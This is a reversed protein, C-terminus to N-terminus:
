HIESLHFLASGFIDEKPRYANFNRLHQLDSHRHYKLFSRRLIEFPELCRKEVEERGDFFAKRGHSFHKLFNQRIVDLEGLFSEIMRKGATNCLRDLDAM